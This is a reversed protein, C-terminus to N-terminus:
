LNMVISNETIDLSQRKDLKASSTLVSIVAGRQQNLTHSYFIGMIVMVQEEKLKKKGNLMEWLRTYMTKLRKHKNESSIFYGTPFSVMCIAYKM